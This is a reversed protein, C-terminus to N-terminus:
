QSACLASAIEFCVDWYQLARSQKAERAIVFVNYTFTSEIRIPKLFANEKIKLRLVSNNLMINKDSLTDPVASKITDIMPSGKDASMLKFFNGALPKDILM